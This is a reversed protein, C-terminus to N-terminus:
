SGVRPRSPSMVQLQGPCQSCARWATFESTDSDKDLPCPIDTTHGEGWHQAPFDLELRREESM